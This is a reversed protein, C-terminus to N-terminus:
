LRVKVLRLRVGCSVHQRADYPGDGLNDQRHPWPEHSTEVTAAFNFWRSVEATGHFVISVLWLPDDYALEM